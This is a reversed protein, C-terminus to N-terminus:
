RWLSRQLERVVPSPRLPSNAAAGPLQSEAQAVAITLTLKSLRWPLGPIPWTRVDLIRSTSPALSRDFLVASTSQLGGAAVFVGSRDNSSLRWGGAALSLRAVPARHSSKASGLPFTNAAAMRVNTETGRTTSVARQASGFVYTAEAKESSV